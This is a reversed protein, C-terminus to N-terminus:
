ASQAKYAMNPPIVDVWMGWHGGLRELGDVLISTAAARAQKEDKWDLRRGCDVLEMERCVINELVMSATAGLVRVADRYQRMHFTQFESSPLGDNGQGGFVGDLRLTAFNAKMGAHYWHAFFKDAVREHSENLVKRKVLKGITRDTVSIVGTVSQHYYVEAKAMREPTPPIVMQGFSGSRRAKVKRKIKAM